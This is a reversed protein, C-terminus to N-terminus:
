DDFLLQREVIHGFYGLIGNAKAQDIHVVM